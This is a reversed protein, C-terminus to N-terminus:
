CRQITIETMLNETDDVDFCFSAYEVPIEYKLLQWSNQSDLEKMIVNYLALRGNYYNQIKIAQEESLNYESKGFEKKVQELSLEAVPIDMLDKVIAKCVELDEVEYSESNSHKAKCSTDQKWYYPIRESTSYTVIYKM